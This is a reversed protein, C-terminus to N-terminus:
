GGNLMQKRMKLQYDNPVIELGKQLYQNAKAKQGKKFYYVCAESYAQGVVQSNIITTGQRFYYDEFLNRYQEGRKEDKNKFSEGFEAVYSMALLSNFNGNESLSAFRGKYFELTDLIPRNSRENRFSQSLSSIFVSGLDVNNPQIELAEAFFYKARMPNGQNYFARGSEYYYVFSVEDLVEKDSSNQIVADFCKRYLLKDNNKFLVTQTLNYFEGRIMETTIGKEKFRSIRGILQAKILPDLNPTELRAASFHLLLYESRMNPYFWYGKKVQEYAGAIDNHDQKFLGDNLYQIGVLQTLNINESGFYYKNFLEDVSTSSIESAGIIKQDKLNNIFNSKYTNDFTLFGFIPTTTEIMINEANPYAVLYVHTPKEKITYPIKLKEFFMAYLATATVCNYNGNRSIDYFRNEEEYKALFRSHVLQYIYKIKKDNKKRFNESTEIEKITADFREEFNKVDQLATPSNAFFLSTFNTQSKKFHNLFEATEFPSTYALEDWRVLSDIQGNALLITFSLTLSLFLRMLM